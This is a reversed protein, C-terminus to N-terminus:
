RAQLHLQYHIPGSRTAGSEILGRNALSRRRGQISAVRAGIQEYVAGM